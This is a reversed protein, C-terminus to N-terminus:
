IIDSIALPKPLYHFEYPATSWPNSVKNYGKEQLLKTCSNGELAISLIEYKDFPFDKLVTLESGEIDMALFHITKPANYKILLSELTISDKLVPIGDEMIEETWYPSELFADVTKGLGGCEFFAVKGNKDSLCSNECPVKRNEVLGEYFMSNPEVCIGDWGLKELEYCSSYIIGNCAGVEVFFGGDPFLSNAWEDNHAPNGETGFKYEIAKLM